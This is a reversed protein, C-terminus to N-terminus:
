PQLHDRLRGVAQRFDRAIQAGVARQFPYAISAHRHALMEFAPRSLFAVEIDTQAVCSASRPRHDVMALVGVLAGPEMTGLVKIEGDQELQVRVTGSLLFYAGDGRDGQDIIQHGAPHSRLELAMVLAQRDQASLTDFDPLGALFRDLAATSNSM